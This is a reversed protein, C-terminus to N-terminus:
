VPVNSSPVLNSLERSLSLGNVKVSPTPCTIFPHSSPSAVIFIPDDKDPDRNAEYFNRGATTPRGRFHFEEGNPDTNPDYTFNGQRNPNSEFRTKADRYPLFPMVITTTKRNYHKAM